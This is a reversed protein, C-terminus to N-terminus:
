IDNDSKPEVLGTKRIDQSVGLQIDDKGLFMSHGGLMSIAGETSVRTRTSRKSFMMAITQGKLQDFAESPLSNEKSKQKFWAANRVLTELEPKKLDQLSM